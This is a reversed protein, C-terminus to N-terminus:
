VGGKKTLGLSELVEARAPGTLEKDMEICVSMRWGTEGFRRGSKGYLEGDGNKDYVRYDGFQDQFVRPWEDGRLREIAADLIAMHASSFAYIPPGGRERIQQLGQVIEETTM